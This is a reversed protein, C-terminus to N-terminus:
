IKGRWKLKESKAKLKRRLRRSAEALEKNKMLM